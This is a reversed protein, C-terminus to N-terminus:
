RQEKLGAQKLISNLTGPALDDSPKGAVTVRGPKGPHKYQRHGEIYMNRAYWDGYEVSSQPGWHAWIGFKADRFWEPVRYKELSERSATFPGPLIVPATEARALAAAAVGGAVRIADRRTIKM